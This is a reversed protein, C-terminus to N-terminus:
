KPAAVEDKIVRDLGRGNWIWASFTRSGDAAVTWDWLLTGDDSKGKTPGAWDTMTAFNPNASRQFDCSAKYLRPKEPLARPNALGDGHDLVWKWGGDPQRRWVTTFYGNSRPRVWPGTNVAATGDCSVYSDAPWWQVAIPPNKEPLNDKANVAQPSFIVADDTMFERFATWQGRAQAARAFAREAEIPGMDPDSGALLLFFM